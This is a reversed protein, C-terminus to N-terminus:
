HSISEAPLIWIPNSFARNGELDEVIISYWGEGEPATTFSIVAQLGMEELDWEEVPEGNGILTASKLGNVSKLTFPLDIESGPLYRVQTGFLHGPEILPGTTAYAHGNKLNRAFGGTEPAGPIHVMMRMRGTQGTWVDHTDSGAALYVRMGRNWLEFMRELVRDHDDVINMEVLDFGPNFGGPVTGEELSHFYGYSIYPHNVSVVEAGMRRADGYIGAPTAETPDVSLQAGRDLPFINFHGWSPSVEMSPIFGIGRDAALSDMVTHNKGSDHDSLFAVDLGAALQAQLVNRPPTAGDLIDSHHHLDAGYWGQQAPQFLVPIRVNMEESQGSRIEVIKSLPKTLFGDGAGFEVRYKGPAARFTLRGKEEIDTFMMTRGLYEIPTTQGEVIKMGADMPTGTDKDRIRFIVEGPNKLDTFHHEVPNDASVKIKGSSSASFGDAIAYLTYDGEPLELRYRGGSGASWSYTIGEQEVVIIPESVKEGEITRVHGTVTGTTRDLHKSELEVAEQVSGDDIVQLWGEFTRTEDPKLTHELYQDQGDYGVYNAFPAHFVLAWNKEYSGAWQTLAQDAGYSDSETLGPRNFFYGGDAWLIYGSLLDEFPKSGRNTMQTQIHVISEGRNLIFRTELEVERWNREVVIEGRDPEDEIVTVIQYTSPWSSWNNPMFDILSVLDESYEGNRIIALDLIGGRAVGWPPGTEVAFSLAIHENQMTIDTTSVADGEPIPSPGETIKVGDSQFGSAASPIFWSGIVAVLVPLMGKIRNM